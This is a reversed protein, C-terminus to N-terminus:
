KPIWLISIHDYLHTARIHKGYIYISTLQLKNHIKRGLYTSHWILFYKLFSIFHFIIIHYVFCFSLLSFSICLFMFNACVCNICYHCFWWMLMSQVIYFGILLRLAQNILYYFDPISHPTERVTHDTALFNTFNTHRTRTHTRWTPFLQNKYVLVVVVVVVISTFAQWNDINNSLWCIIYLM